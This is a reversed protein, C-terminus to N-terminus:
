KQADSENGFALFSILFFRKEQRVMQCPALSPPPLLTGADFLCFSASSASKTFFLPFCEQSFVCLKSSWYCPTHHPYFKYVCDCFYGHRTHFCQEQELPGPIPDTLLVARSSSLCCPGSSEQSLHFERFSEVLSLVSNLLFYGVSCLNLLWERPSVWPPVLTEDDLLPIIFMVRHVIYFSPSCSAYTTALFSLTLSLFGKVAPKLFYSIGVALCGVALLM